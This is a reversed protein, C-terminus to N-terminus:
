RSRTFGAFPTNLTISGDSNIMWGSTFYSTKGNGSLVIEINIRQGYDDLKGLSYNGNVFKQM